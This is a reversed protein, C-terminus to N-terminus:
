FIDYGHIEEMLHVFYMPTGVDVRLFLANLEESYTSSLEAVNRLSIRHFFPMSTTSTIVAM